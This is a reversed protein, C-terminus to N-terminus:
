EARSKKARAEKIKDRMPCLQFSAADFQFSFPHRYYTLSPKNEGLADGREGPRKEKDPWRVNFRYFISVRAIGM